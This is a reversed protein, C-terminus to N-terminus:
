ETDLSVTGWYIAEKRQTILKGVQKIKALVETAKTLDENTSITVGQAAAIAKSLQQKVVGLAKSDITINSM